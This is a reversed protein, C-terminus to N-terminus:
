LSRSVREPVDDRAIRAAAQGVHVQRPEVPLLPAVRLGYLHDARQDCDPRVVSGGVALQSADVGALALERVGDGGIARREGELGAEGLGM